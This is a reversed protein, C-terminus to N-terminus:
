LKKKGRLVLGETRADSEFGGGATIVFVPISRPFRALTRRCPECKDLSPNSKGSEALRQRERGFLSTRPTVAKCVSRQSHLGETDRQSHNSSRLNTVRRHPSPAAKEAESKFEQFLRSQAMREEMGERPVIECAQSLQEGSGANATSGVM